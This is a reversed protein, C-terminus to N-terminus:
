SKVRFYQVHGPDMSKYGIIAPALPIKKRAGPESLTINPLIALKAAHLRLNGDVLVDCGCGVAVLNFVVM